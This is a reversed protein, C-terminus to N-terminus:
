SLGRRQRELRLQGEMEKMVAQALRRVQAPSELGPAGAGELAKRVSSEQRELQKKLGTLDQQQQALTQEQEQNKRQLLRLEPVQRQVTLEVTREAAQAATERLTEPTERRLLALEAEGEPYAPGPREPSRDQPRPSRRTAPHEATRGIQPAPPTRRLAQVPGDQRRPSTGPAPPPTERETQLTLVSLSRRLAITEGGLQRISAASGKPPERFVPRAGRPRPPWRDAEEAQAPPGSKRGAPALPKRPFPEAPGDRRRRVMWPAFPASSAGNGTERAAADRAAGLPPLTRRLEGLAEAVAGGPYARRDELVRALGSYGPGGSEARQLIEKILGDRRPVWAARERSEEARVQRWLSPWQEALRAVAPPLAGPGAGGGTRAWRTLAITLPEPPPGQEKLYRSLHYRFSKYEKQSRFTLAQGIQRAPPGAAPEPIQPLAGSERLRNLLVRSEEGDLGDVLRATEDRWAGGRGQTYATLRDSVTREVECTRELTRIRSDARLREVAGAPDASRALLYVLQDTESWETGAGPVEFAPGAEELLVELLAAREEPPGASLIQAAEWQRELVSRTLFSRLERGVASADATEPSPGAGSRTEAETPTERELEVRAQDESLARREVEARVQSQSRIEKKLTETWRVLTELEQRRSERILHTLREEAPVGPAADGTHFAGSREALVLFAARADAPAGDLRSQMARRQVRGTKLTQDLWSLVPAAQALLAEEPPGGAGDEARGAPPVASEGPRGVPPVPRPAPGSLQRELVRILGEYERDSSERILRTLAEASDPGPAGSRRRDRLSVLDARTEVLRWVTEREEPDARELIRLFAERHRSLAQTRERDPERRRYATMERFTGLPPRTRRKAQAPTLRVPRRAGSERAPDEEPAPGAGLPAADPAEGAAGRAQAARYELRELDKELRAGVQQLLLATREVGTERETSQSLQRLLLRVERCTERDRGELATLCTTLSQRLSNFEMVPPAKREPGSFYASLQLVLRLTLQTLQVEQATQLTEREEAERFVLWADPYPGGEAAPDHRALLGAAFRAAGAGLRPRVPPLLVHPELM